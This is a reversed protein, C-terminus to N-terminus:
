RLRERERGRKTTREQGASRFHGPKEDVGEAVPAACNKTCVCVCVCVLGGAFAYHM